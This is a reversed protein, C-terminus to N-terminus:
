ERLARTGEEEATLGLLRIVLLSVLVRSHRM